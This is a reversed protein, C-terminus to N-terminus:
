ALYTEVLLKDLYTELTQLTLKQFNTESTLNWLGSMTGAALTGFCKAQSAWIHSAEKYGAGPEICVAARETDRVRVCACTRPM